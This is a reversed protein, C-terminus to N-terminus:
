SYSNLLIKKSVISVNGNSTHSIETGHSRVIVGLSWKLQEGFCWVSYVSYNICEYNENLYQNDDCYLTSCDHYPLDCFDTWKGGPNQVFHEISSTYVTAESYNYGGLGHVEGCYVCFILLQISLSSLLKLPDLM